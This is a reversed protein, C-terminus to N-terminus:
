SKPGVLFYTTMTGRGKVEIRGRAEFVFRDGIADVVAQTVQIRSPEGHSEMRSAMNVADGWLDYIFKKRGIVGAVVEGTNIGIRLKLAHGHEANFAELERIMDLAMSAVAACHDDRREPVGGVAMYCDGITKIKELGYRDTLADFRTFVDNLMRVVSEADMRQSLRTFEVLDAFLITAEGYRDAITAEHDKLRVAIAPPLVNLLLQESKDRELAVERHAVELERNKDRLVAEARRKLRYRSVFVVALVALLLSAAIFANRQLARQDLELAQIAKDQQLAHIERTSRESEFRAQMEAVKEQASANVLKERLEVYAELQVIAQSLRGARKAADFLRLRAEAELDPVELRRAEALGAELMPTGAQPRGTEVLEAGIAIRTSAAGRRDDISERLALAERLYGIGVERNGLEAHSRGLNHLALSESKRDGLEAFLKRAQDYTVIAAALRGADNQLVGLNLLTVGEAPRNGAKRQIALARELYGLAQDNMGQRFLIPGINAYAQAQFLPLNLREFTDAAALYNALAQKADGSELQSNALNNLTIARSQEDGARAAHALSREFAAIAERYRGQGHLLNGIGDNVTALGADDGAREGFEAARRYAALADDDRSQAAHLHGLNAAVRGAEKPNGTAENLAVARELLPKAADYEGRLYRVVGIANLNAARTRDDGIRDAIALGENAYKLAAEQDTQWNLKALGALAAAKQPTDRSAAADRKLAEVDPAPDAAFAVGLALALAISAASALLRQM